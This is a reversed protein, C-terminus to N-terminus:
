GAAFTIDGKPDFGAIKGHGPSKRDVGSPRSTPLPHTPRARSQAGLLEEKKGLSLQNCHWLVSRRVPRNRPSPEIETGRGGGTMRLFTNEEDPNAPM